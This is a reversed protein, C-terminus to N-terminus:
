NLADAECLLLINAATSHLVFGALYAPITRPKEGQGHGSAKNRTTPVGGELLARLSSFEGELYAPVLNHEFVVDLLKKAPANPDFKWKRKTCIVKLVSEFAKLCENIAEGHRDHRYHEHARLFEQNPGEFGRGNLLELVPKV